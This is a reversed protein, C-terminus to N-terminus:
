KQKKLIDGEEPILYEMYDFLRGFGFWNPVTHLKRFGLQEMKMIVAFGHRVHMTVKKWGRRRVEILFQRFLQFYNELRQEEPGIVAVSEIYLASFDQVLNPDQEFYEEFAEDHPFSSIYGIIGEKNKIVAQIGKKNGLVRRLIEPPDQIRKPFSFNEIELIQSFEKESFQNKIEVSYDIM